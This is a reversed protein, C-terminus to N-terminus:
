SARFVQLLGEVVDQGACRKSVGLLALVQQAVDDFVTEGALIIKQPFSHDARLDKAPSRIILGAVIRYDSDPYCLHPFAQGLVVLGQVLGWLDVNLDRRAAISSGEAPIVMEVCSDIFLNLDKCSDNWLCPKSAKSCYVCLWM